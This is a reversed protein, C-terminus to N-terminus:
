AFPSRTSLNLKNLHLGDILRKLVIRLTDLLGIDYELVYRILNLRIFILLFEAVKIQFGSYTPGSMDPGHELAYTEKFNALQYLHLSPIM